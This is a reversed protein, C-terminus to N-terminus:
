WGRGLWTAGGVYDLTIDRGVEEFVVTSDIYIVVRDKVADLVLTLFYWENEQMSDM